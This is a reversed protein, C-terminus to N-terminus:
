PDEKDGRSARLAEELAEVGRAGCIVVVHTLLLIVRALATTPHGARVMKKLREIIERETM